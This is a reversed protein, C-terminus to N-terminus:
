MGSFRRWESMFSDTPIFAAYRDRENSLEIGNADMQTLTFDAVKITWRNKSNRVDQLVIADGARRIQCEGLAHVADEGQSGAFRHQVFVMTNREIFDELVAEPAIANLQTRDLGARVIM